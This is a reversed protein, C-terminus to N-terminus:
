TTASEDSEEKKKTLANTVPSMGKLFVDKGSNYGEDVCKKVGKNEKYLVFAGIICTILIFLKKM